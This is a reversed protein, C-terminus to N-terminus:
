GAIPGAFRRELDALLDRRPDKEPTLYEVWRRVYALDLRPGQAAFLRELDIRDKDRFLALKHVALDEASLFWLPEGGPGPLKVRRARAAHHLSHFAVFLDVEITARLVRFFSMHGVSRQAQERQFLCGARELADFLPELNEAPMFVSLDADQTMRAIGYAALALAGGIAYDIGAETLAKAVAAAAEAADDSM